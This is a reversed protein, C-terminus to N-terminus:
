AAAEAVAAVEALGHPSRSRSRRGEDEEAKQRDDHKVKAEQMAEVLERLSLGCLRMLSNHYDIKENPETPLAKMIVRRNEFWAVDCGELGAQMVATWAPEPLAKKGTKNSSRMKQCAVKAAITPTGTLLTRRMIERDTLATAHREGAQASAGNEKYGYDTGRVDSALLLAAPAGPAAAVPRADDGLSAEQEGQEEEEEGEEEEVDRDEEDAGAPPVQGPRHPMTAPEEGPAPAFLQQSWLGEFPTATDGIFDLMQQRRSQEVVAADLSEDEDHISVAAAKLLHLVKLLGAAREVHEEEVMIQKAAYAPNNQFRGRFMDFVCLSSALEGLHWPAAGLAAGRHM